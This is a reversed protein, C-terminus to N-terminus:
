QPLKAHAEDNRPKRPRLRHSLHIVPRDVLRHFAEALLLSLPLALVLVTISGASGLWVALTVIIPEHVLYLSFSRHGLYQFPPATLLPLRPAAFAALAVILVTGMFEALQAGIAVYALAEPTLPLRVIASRYHVTLLLAFALLLSFGVQRPSIGALAEELRYRNRALLVGAGFFSFYALLDLHLMFGGLYVLLLAAAYRPWHIAAARAAVLLFPLLLSFLVEWGLSWLPSNIWLTTGPLAALAQLVAAGDPAAHANVWWSAGEHFTRPVLLILGVALAVSAWVPLYLRLLRRAYWRRWVGSAPAPSQVTLVFGSLVFFVFVATRGDWLLALPTGAAAAVLPETDPSVNLYAVSLSPVTLLTHHIAVVLAAAGRLGDLAVYRGQPAVSNVPM